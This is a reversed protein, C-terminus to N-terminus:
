NPRKKAKGIDDLMASYAVIQEAAFWGEAREFKYRIFDLVAESDHPPLSRVAELFEGSKTDSEVYKPGDGQLLWVVNVGAWHAIRTAMELQPMGEGLLWKRAANPSVGFMEALETQRGRSPTIGKETCLQNLRQAFAGLGPDLQM